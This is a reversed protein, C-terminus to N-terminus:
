SRAQSLAMADRRFGAPQDFEPPRGCQGVPTEAPQADVTFDVHRLRARQVDVRAHGMDEGQGVQITHNARNGPSM